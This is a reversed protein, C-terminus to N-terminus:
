AQTELMMLMAQPAAPWWSVGAPTPVHKRIMTSDDDGVMVM